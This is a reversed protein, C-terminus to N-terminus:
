YKKPDLGPPALIRPQVNTNRKHLTYGSIVPLFLTPCWLHHLKQKSFVDYRFHHINPQRYLNQRPRHPLLPRLPHQPSRTQPCCLSSSCSPSFGTQAAVRLIFGLPSHFRASLPPTLLLLLSSFLLKRLAFYRCTSSFISSPILSSHLCLKLRLSIKYFVFM